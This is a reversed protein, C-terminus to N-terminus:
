ATPECDCGGRELLEVAEYRQGCDECLVSLEAFLRFEGLTLEDTNRLRSLKGETVSLVRGRLQQINEAEVTTRDREDSAYEAGRDRKLFSRVAQYTVFDSRLSEIDVGERELRRVTRTRDATSVEDDTLLRYVNEVEGALPQMGAETMASRLLRRNVLTALDRLSLREDGSATWKRELEEGLGALDYEDILRALKLQRGSGGGGSSETDTM